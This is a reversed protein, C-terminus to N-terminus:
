DIPPYDECLTDEIAQEVSASLSISGDLVQNINWWGGGTQDPIPDMGMYPTSWGMSVDDTGSIGGLLDAFTFQRIQGQQLVDVTEGYTHQVAIGDVVAPSESFTDDTTHIIM